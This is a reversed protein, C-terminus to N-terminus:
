VIRRDYILGLLDVFEKYSEGQWVLGLFDKLENYQEGEKLYNIYPTM